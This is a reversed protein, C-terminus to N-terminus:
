RGAGCVGRNQDHYRRRSLESVRKRMQNVRPTTPRWSSLRARPNIRDLLRMIGLSTQDIPPEDELLLGSTGSHRPRHM